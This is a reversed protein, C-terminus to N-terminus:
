RVLDVVMLNEAQSKEDMKLEAAIQQDLVSDQLNRRATGKVTINLQTFKVVPLSNCSKTEVYGCLCVSLPGLLPM